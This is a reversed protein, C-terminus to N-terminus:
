IVIFRLCAILFRETRGTVPTAKPLENVRPVAIVDHEEGAFGLRSMKLSSPILVKILAAPVYVSKDALM